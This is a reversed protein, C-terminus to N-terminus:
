LVVMLEEESSLHLRAPNVLKILKPSNAVKIMKDVEKRVSAASTANKFNAHAYFKNQDLYFNNAPETKYTESCKYAFLKLNCLRSEETIGDLSALVVLVRQSNKTSKLQPEIESVKLKGAEIVRYNERIM